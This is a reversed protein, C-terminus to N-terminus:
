EQECNECVITGDSVEKIINVAVKNRNIIIQRINITGKKGSQTGKTLTSFTLVENAPKYIEDDPLGLKKIIDEKRLNM